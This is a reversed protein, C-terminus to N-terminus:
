LKVTPDPDGIQNTAIVLLVTTEKVSWQNERITNIKVRKKKWDCNEFVGESNQTRRKLNYGYSHEFQQYPSM